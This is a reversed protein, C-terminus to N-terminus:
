SLSVACTKALELKMWGTEKKIWEVLISPFNIFVFVRACVCVCCVDCLAFFFDQQLNFGKQM